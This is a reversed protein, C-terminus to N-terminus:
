GARASVSAAKPTPMTVPVGRSARPSVISAPTPPVSPKRASIMPKPETRPFISSTEPPASRIALLRRCQSPRSRAVQTMISMPKMALIGTKTSTPNTRRTGSTKTMARCALIEVMLIAMGSTVDRMTTCQMTGGCGAAVAIAPVRPASMPFTMTRPRSTPRGQAATPPGTNEYKPMLPATAVGTVAPLSAAPPSAPSSFASSAAEPLRGSCAGSDCPLRGPKPIVRKVIRSGRRMMTPRVTRTCASGSLLPARGTTLRMPLGIVASSM